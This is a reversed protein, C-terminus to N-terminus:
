RNWAVLLAPYIGYPYVVAFLSIWFVAKM